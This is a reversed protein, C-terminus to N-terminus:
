CRCLLRHCTYVIKQYMSKADIDSVTNIDKLLSNITKLLNAGGEVLDVIAATEEFHDASMVM